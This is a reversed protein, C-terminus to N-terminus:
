MSPPPISRALLSALRAIIFFSLVLLLLIIFAGNVNGIM